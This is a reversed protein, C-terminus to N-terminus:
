KESPWTISAMSRETSSADCVSPTGGEFRCITTEIGVRDDVLLRDGLLAARGVPADDVVAYQVKRVFGVACQGAAPIDVLHQAAELLGLEPM